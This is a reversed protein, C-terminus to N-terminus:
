GRCFGKYKGANELRHLAQYGDAKAVHARKIVASPKPEPGTKRLAALARRIAAEVRRDKDSAAKDRRAQKAKAEAALTEQAEVARRWLDDQEDRRAREKAAADFVMQRLREVEPPDELLRSVSAMGARAIAAFKNSFDDEM